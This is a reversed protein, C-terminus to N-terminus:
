ADRSMAPASNMFFALVAAGGAIAAGKITALNTYDLGSAVLIAGATQVFTRVARRGAVGVEEATPVGFATVARRTWSM